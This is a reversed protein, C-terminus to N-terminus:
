PSVVIKIGHYALFAQFLPGIGFLIMMVLFGGGWVLARQHRVQGAQLKEVGQRMGALAQCVQFSRQGCEVVHDSLERQTAQVAGLMQMVASDDPRSTPMTAAEMAQLIQPIHDNM